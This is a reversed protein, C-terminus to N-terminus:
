RPLRRACKRAIGQRIQSVRPQSIGLRAAIEGQRYGDCVLELVERERASLAVESLLESLLREDSTDGNAPIRAWLSEDGHALKDDDSPLVERAMRAQERVLRRLYDRPTEGAAIEPVQKALFLSADLHKNYEGAEPLLRRLAKREEFGLHRNLKHRWHENTEELGWARVLEVLDLALEKSLTAPRRVGDPLARMHRVFPFRQAVAKYVGAFMLIMQWEDDPFLLKVEDVTRPNRFARINNVIKAVIPEPVQLGVALELANLNSILAGARQPELFLPAVQRQLFLPEHRMRNEIEDWVSTLGRLLGLIHRSVAGSLIDLKKHCASCYVAPGCTEACLLCRNVLESTSQDVGKSPGALAPVM